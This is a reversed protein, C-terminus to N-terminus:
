NPLTVQLAKKVPTVYTQILFKFSHLRLKILGTLIAGLQLTYTRSIM